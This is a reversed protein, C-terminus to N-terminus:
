RKRFRSYLKDLRAFEERDLERAWQFQGEAEAKEGKAELVMAWLYRVSPDSANDGYIVILDSEAEAIKGLQLHVLTRWARAEVHGPDLDVAKDCDPKAEAAKGTIARVSCRDAYGGPERPDLRIAADYDPLAKDYAGLNFYAAGRNRYADVFGPDLRLAQGYDAIAKDSNGRRLFSNGRNSYAVALNEKAGGGKIVASCAREQEAPEVTGQANGCAHHDPTLVEAAASATALTLAIAALSLRLIMAAQENVPITHAPPAGSWRL